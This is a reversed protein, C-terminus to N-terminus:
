SGLTACTVGSENNKHVARGSCGRGNNYLPVFVFQHFSCILNSYDALWSSSSDATVLMRAVHHDEVDEKNRAVQEVVKHLLKTTEGDTGLELVDGDSYKAALSLLLHNTDATKKKTFTKVVKDFVRSSDLDGQILVVMEDEMDVNFCNRSNWTTRTSVFDSPLFETNSSIRVVMLKTRNILRDVSDIRGEGKKDVLSVLGWDRDSGLCDWLKTNVDCITNDMDNMDVNWTPVPFVPHLRSFRKRSKVEKRKMRMDMVAGMMMDCSVIMVFIKVLTMELVKNRGSLLLM